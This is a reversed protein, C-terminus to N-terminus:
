EIPKRSRACLATVIALGAGGDDANTVAFRDVDIKAELFFLGNACAFPRKLM